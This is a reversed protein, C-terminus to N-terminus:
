MMELWYRESMAQTTMFIGEFGWEGRAINTLMDKNESTETGNIYNYSTMISWPDAEKVAIEFGKLYIERLARESMRSDSSNRNSEKNNAAFHKLTISVGESQCGETIAAAM